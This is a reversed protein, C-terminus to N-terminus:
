KKEEQKRDVKMNSPCSLDETSSMAKQPKIEFCSLHLCAWIFNLGPKLSLPWILMSILVAFLIGYAANLVREM